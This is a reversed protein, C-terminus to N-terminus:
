SLCTPDIESSLDLLSFVASSETILPTKRPLIEIPKTKQTTFMISIGSRFPYKEESTEPSVIEAPISTAAMAPGNIPIHLSMIPLRNGKIPTKIHIAKVPERISVPRLMAAINAPPIM